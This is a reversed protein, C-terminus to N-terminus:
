KGVIEEATRIIDEQELSNFGPRFLKVIEIINQITEQQRTQIEANNDHPKDLEVWTNLLLQLNKRIQELSNEQEIM